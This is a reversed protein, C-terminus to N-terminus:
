SDIDESRSSWADPASREQSSGVSRPRFSSEPESARGTLPITQPTVPFSRNAEPSGLRPNRTTSAAPSAEGSFTQWAARIGAWVSRANVQAGRAQTRAGEISRNVQKVVQGAGKVGEDLSDAIESVELSTLRLAELTPPLERLLTDFFREVSQAARGLQIVAPLLTIVVALIGVAVLGVSLGLWFVPDTM